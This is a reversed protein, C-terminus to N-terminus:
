AENQPLSIYNILSFLKQYNRIGFAGIVEVFASGSIV